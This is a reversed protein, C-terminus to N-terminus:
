AQMANSDGARGVREQLLMDLLFQCNARRRTSASWVGANM